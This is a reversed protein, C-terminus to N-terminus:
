QRQRFENEFIIKHLWGMRKKEHESHITLITKNRTVVTNNSSILSKTGNFKINVTENKLIVSNVKFNKPKANSHNPIGFLIKLVIRVGWFVKGSLIKGQHFFNKFKEIRHRM